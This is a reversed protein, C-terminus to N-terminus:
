SPVAVLAASLLVIVAAIVSEPRATRQRLRVNGADGVVAPARLRQAGARLTRDGFWVLAVLALAEVVAFAGHRSHIAAALGGTQVVAYLAVSVVMVLVCGSAVPTFRAVAARMESRDERPLVIAALVVLGGLWLTMAGVHAVMLVARVAAWSGSTSDRSVAFTLPMALLAASGALSRPVTMGRYRPGGYTRNVEHLWSWAVCLLALRLVLSTGYVTAITDRLSHRRHAADIWLLGLSMLVTTVWGTWALVTVSRSWRGEPWLYLWYVGIGALLVLGVLSGARLVGELFTM